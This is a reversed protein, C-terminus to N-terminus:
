LCKALVAIVQKILSCNFQLNTDIKNLQGLTQQGFPKRGFSKSGHHLLFLFLTSTLIFNHFLQLFTLLEKEIRRMGTLSLKPFLIPISGLTSLPPVAQLQASTPLTPYLLTFSM